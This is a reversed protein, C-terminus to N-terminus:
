CRYVGCGVGECWVLVEFVVRCVFVFFDFVLCCLWVFLSFVVVYVVVVSYGVFSGGM